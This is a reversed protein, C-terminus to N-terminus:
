EGLEDQHFCNGVGMSRGDWFRPTEIIRNRRYKRATKEWQVRHLPDFRKKEDKKISQVMGDEGIQKIRRGRAGAGM